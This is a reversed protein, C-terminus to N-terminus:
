GKISDYYEIPQSYGRDPSFINKIVLHKQNGSTKPLRIDTIQIMATCVFEDFSEFPRVTLKFLPCLTYCSKGPCIADTHLM